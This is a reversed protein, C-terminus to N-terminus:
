PPDSDSNLRRLGLKRGYVTVEGVAGVPAYDALAAALDAHSFAWGKWKDDAFLIADPNKGDIDAVLTERDQRLYAAYKAATAQDLKGQQSWYNITDTIWLYPYTGVWVGGVNRTLPHGLSIDPGIVLIKPHPALSSVLRELPATDLRPEYCFYGFGIALIAAGATAPSAFLERYSKGAGRLLNPGLALAILAVAPYVQYPWGKGQLLFAALAGISALAPVAVLPDALQARGAHILLRGLFLWCLLGPNFALALWTKRQPVYVSAVLPAVKEIYAPFVVFVAAVYLLGFFAAAYLELSAALTRWGMKWGLYPLAALIMLAFPPKISAMIAGGLGALIRLMAAIHAGSARAALTAILPLGAVVALHDREDFVAGPLLAVIFFAFALYTSNVGSATKAQSLIVACLGLSAFTALFGCLVVMFEPSVGLNQAAWTQPLYLLISAPPNVEAFDIYPKQGALVKECTTILWSVDTSTRLITQIAAAALMLVFLRGYSGIEAMRFRAVVALVAGLSLSKRNIGVFSLRGNV